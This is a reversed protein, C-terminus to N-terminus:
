CMLFVDQLIDEAEEKKDIKLKIYRIYDTKKSKFIDVINKRLSM